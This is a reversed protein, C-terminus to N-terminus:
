VRREQPALQHRKVIQPVPITHVDLDGHVGLTSVLLIEDLTESRIFGIACTVHPELGLKTIWCIQEIKPLQKNAM